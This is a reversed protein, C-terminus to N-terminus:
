DKKSNLNDSEDNNLVVSESYDFGDYAPPGYLNYAEESDFWKQAAEKLHIIAMIAQYAEKNSMYLSPRNELTWELDRKWILAVKDDCMPSFLDAEYEDLKNLMNWGNSAEITDASIHMYNILYYKLYAQLFNHHHTMHGGIEHELVCRLHDSTTTACWLRDIYLINQYSCDGSCQEFSAGGASIVLPWGWEFPMSRVIVKEQMGRAKCIDAILNKLTSSVNIEYIIQEDANSPVIFLQKYSNILNLIDDWRENTIQLEQKLLAYAARRADRLHIMFAEQMDGKNFSHKGQLFLAIIIKQVGSPHKKLEVFLEAASRLAIFRDINFKQALADLVKEQFQVHLCKIAQAYENIRNDKFGWFRTRIFHAHNKGLADAILDHTENQTDGKLIQGIQSLTYSTINKALASALTRHPRLTTHQLMSIIDDVSYSTIRQAVRQALERKDDESGNRFVELVVKMDYIDLKEITRFKPEEEMAHQSAMALGVAAAGTALIFNSDAAYGNDKFQEKQDNSQTSQTHALAQSGGRLLPQRMSRATVLLSNVRPARMAQLVPSVALSLAFIFTYLKYNM